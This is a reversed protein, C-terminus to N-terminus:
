NYGVGLQWFLFTLELATDEIIKSLPKGGAHGAKIDYLLVVPLGSTTVAQLRAAMKRAQLPPVRTDADGTTLYVAPYATDPVVKDYPSYKLLFKFHEPNSADGYEQMAPPSLVFRPYGLLDLDPAHCLVVQYLDPRQTMVAGVLLGGNSGGRIALKSPQTYGHDILWEAAVIFDDFVNQKNELMGARHWAEGFEGGGRLNPVAFIGGQEMWLAMTPSFFPTLSVNFGGYGYLVTPASGNLMLGKKHALFMPVHTGDRSTYWIQQVEFDESNFPPKSQSWIALQGTSVQYHYITPPQILSTAYLFADDSDWLGWPGDVTSNAPCPIDGEFEGRLTYVKIVSAVNHLFRVFLKGGALNFSEITDVGAPIIERWTDPTAAKDRLDVACIRYTPAQWDTRIFLTDGVYGAEFHADLGTVLARASGGDVLDQVWLENKQWGLMTTILLYRGDDCINVNIWTDPGYGAGFVEKDMAPDTGFRHFLIRTGDTRSQRAYYFGSDNARSCAVGRYLARPLHDPLEIGQDVDMVRLETEDEGGTRVSFVLFHGNRSADEFTIDVTHDPSLTHPDILIRDAGTLGDRVYLVWLDDEAKKQRVFFRQGRQIPADLQDLRMLQELREQLPKRVSLGDLLTHAYANQADIWQRTESTTQDELWRYPDIREVGHLVEHVNDQRTAPPLLYPNGTM